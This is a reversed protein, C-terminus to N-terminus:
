LESSTVVRPKETIQYSTPFKKVETKKKVLTATTNLQWRLHSNTEEVLTSSSCRKSVSIRSIKTTMMILKDEQNKIYSVRPKKLRARSLDMKLDQGM